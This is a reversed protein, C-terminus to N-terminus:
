SVENNRNLLIAAAKPIIATNSLDAVKFFRKMREGLLNPLTALYQILTNRTM